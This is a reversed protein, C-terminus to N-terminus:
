RVIARRSGLLRLMAEVYDRQVDPGVSNTEEYHQGPAESLYPNQSDLVYDYEPVIYGFQDPTLGLAWRFTAKPDRAFDLVRTKDFKALDPPVDNCRSYPESGCNPNTELDNLVSFPAPTFPYPADLGSAGDPTGLLLEAHLEGPITIMEALGVDIVAIQSRIVPVNTEGLPRTTDYQEGDRDFLSQAIAIHYADNAVDIYIERARFGLPVAEATVSGAGLSELAYAAVLEGNRYARELGDPVPDGTWGVHQVAGPGVQGGLAGNFFLATGGVGPASYLPNGSADKVDLGKEISERLTHVFDSSTLTSEDGAYEPHATWNVLTAVTEDSDSAIFRITRIEHDFVVPDRTDTVFAATGFGGPDTEAIHGDVKSAGMQVKVAVLAENAEVLAEATMERILANYEPKVGSQGDTPGWIGMTDQTEHVHTSAVLLLDLDLDPHDKEVLERTRQVENYFWGVNDVSCLGVKTDAQRLVVCRVSSPDAVGTAARGLGFGAIWTCKMPDTAVALCGAYDTAADCSDKPVCLDGLLPDFDLYGGKPNERPAYAVVHDVVPTVDRTAVGALLVADRGACGPDGPCRHISGLLDNKPNGAPPEDPPAQKRPDEDSSCGIAALLFLPLTWFGSRALPM